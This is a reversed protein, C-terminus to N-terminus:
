KLNYCNWCLSMYKDTGGIDVTNTDNSIRKTYYGNNKCVNCISSLKTVYTCLPLVLHIQGFPRKLFDGDLASIYVHKNANMCRLVFDYLDPYFQGEDIGIVDYPGIDVNVLTESKIITIYKSQKLVNEDHTIITENNSYRNDGLYKIVLSKMKVFEFRRINRVLETTKGSFMPGLYLKCEM